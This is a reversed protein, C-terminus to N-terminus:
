SLAHRVIMAKGSEDYFSKQTNEFGASEFLTMAVTNKQPITACISNSLTDIAYGYVMLKGLTAKGIGQRQFRRDIVIYSLGLEHRKAFPVYQAFAKDIILYGVVLYDYFITYFIQSKSRKQYALDFPLFFAAQDKDVELQLLSSFDKLQTPKIAIM